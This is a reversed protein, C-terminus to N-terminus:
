ETAYNPTDAVQKKRPTDAPEDAATEQNRYAGYGYIRSADQALTRLPQLDHARQTTDIAAENAHTPSDAAATERGANAPPTNDLPALTCIKRSVVEAIAAADHLQVIGHSQLSDKYAAADKLGLIFDGTLLAFEQYKDEPLSFNEAIEALAAGAEPSSYQYQVQPSAAQFRQLRTDRVSQTDHKSTHSNDM